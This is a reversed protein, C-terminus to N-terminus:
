RSRRAYLHSRRDRAYSALTRERLAKAVRPQDARPLKNLVNACVALDDDNRATGIMKILQDAGVAEARWEGVPWADPEAGLDEGTDKDVIKEAQDEVDVAQEEADAAAAKRKEALKEAMASTRTTPEIWHAGPGEAPEPPVIEGPIYDQVEEAVSLGKLVDPYVDRLCFGRARM